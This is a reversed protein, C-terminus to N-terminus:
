RAAKIRHFGYSKVLTPKAGLEFRLQQRINTRHLARKFDLPSLVRQLEDRDRMM